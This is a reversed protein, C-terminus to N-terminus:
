DNEEDPLQAELQNAVNKIRKELRDLYEEDDINKKCKLYHCYMWVLLSEVDDRDDFTLTITIKERDM